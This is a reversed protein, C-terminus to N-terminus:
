SAHDAATSPLVSVTATRGAILRVGAPVDAIAIRVPVRQALRVWSFTPTVNALLGATDSRERDEIGGAISSVHGFIPRDEGIIDIRVPDNAHIRALKTEEFYGAVYFSASDVLAGIASGATTYNGPQLSFNTIVGDVPARVSARSLNLNAIDRSTEAAHFSAEAQKLASAAQEQKQQSVVDNVALKQYRALDSKAQDMAAQTSLVQAEAQRLALEFRKPDIRFLIDGKRVKQNDSVLVESVLGSVDPAIRVIDARIHGDRTWPEDMYYSWLHSGLVGGCAVMAVTLLIRGSFISATKM